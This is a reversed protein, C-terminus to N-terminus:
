ESIRANHLALRHADLWNQIRLMVARKSPARGGAKLPGFLSARSAENHFRYGAEALERMLAWLRRNSHQPTEFYRGMETM